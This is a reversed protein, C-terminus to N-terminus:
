RSLRAVPRKQLRPWRAGAACAENRDTQVSDLEPVEIFAIQIRRANAETVSSLQEVFVRATEAEAFRLEGIVSELQVAFDDLQAAEVAMLSKGPDSLGHRGTRLAAVGLDQAVLELAIDDASRVIRLRAMEEIGAVFEAQQNEFLNRAPLVDAILGPLQDRDIVDAAHNAAVPIMGGDNQPAHADVLGFVIM